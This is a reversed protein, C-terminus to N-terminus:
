QSEWKDLFTVARAFMLLTGSCIMASPSPSSVGVHRSTDSSISPLDIKGTMRHKASRM